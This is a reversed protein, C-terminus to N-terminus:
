RLASRVTELDHVQTHDEEGTQDNEEQISLLEFMEFADDVTINTTSNNHLDLGYMAVDLLELDGEYSANSIIRNQIDMVNQLHSNTIRTTELEAVAKELDPELEGIEHLLEVMTEQLERVQDQLERNEGKLVRNQRQLIGNETTLRANTSVLSRLHTDMDTKNRKGHLVSFFVCMCPIARAPLMPVLM